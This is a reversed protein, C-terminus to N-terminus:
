TKDCIRDFSDSTWLNAYIKSGTELGSIEFNNDSIIQDPEHDSM